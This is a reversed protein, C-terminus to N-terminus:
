LRGAVTVPSDSDTPVPTVRYNRYEITLLASGGLRTNSTSGNWAPLWFDAFKAYTHEIFDDGDSVIGCEETACVRRM